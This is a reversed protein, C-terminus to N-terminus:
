MSLDAHSVPPLGGVTCFRTAPAVWESDFVEENADVPSTDPQYDGFEM